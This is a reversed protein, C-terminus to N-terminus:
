FRRDFGITANISNVDGAVRGAIGARLATDADLRHSLGLQAQSERAFGAAMRPRLSVLELNGHTAPSLRLTTGIAARYGPVLNRGDTWLESELHIGELIGFGLKKAAVAKVSPRAERTGPATPLDVHAVVGLSPLLAREGVLDYSAALQANGLVAREGGLLHPVRLTLHGEGPLATSVSGEGAVAAVGPAPQAYQLQVDLTRAGVNITRQYADESLDPTPGAAAADIAACLLALLTAIASFERLVAEPPPSKRTPRANRLGRTRSTRSRLRTPM